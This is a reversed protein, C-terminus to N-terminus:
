GPLCINEDSYESELYYKPLANQKCNNRIVGNM